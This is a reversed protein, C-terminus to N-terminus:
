KLTLIVFNLNLMFVYYLYMINDPTALWHIESIYLSLINICTCYMMTNTSSESIRLSESDYPIRYYYYYNFYYGINIFTRLKSGVPLNFSLM